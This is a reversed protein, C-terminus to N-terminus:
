ASGFADAILDLCALISGDVLAIYASILIISISILIFNKKIETKSPFSIGKILKKM